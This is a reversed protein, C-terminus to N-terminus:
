HNLFAHYNHYYLLMENLLEDTYGAREQNMQEVVAAALEPQSNALILGKAIALSTMNAIAQLQRAEGEGLPKEPDLNCTKKSTYEGFGEIFDLILKPEITVEELM